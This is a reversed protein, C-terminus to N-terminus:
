GEEGLLILGATAEDLAMFEAKSATTILSAECTIFGKRSQDPRACRLWYVEDIPVGWVANTFISWSAKQTPNLIVVRSKGRKTGPGGKLRRKSRLSFYNNPTLADHEEFTVCQVVPLAKKRARCSVEDLDAPTNVTGQSMVADRLLGKQQSTLTLPDGQPPTAFVADGAASPTLATLTLFIVTTM